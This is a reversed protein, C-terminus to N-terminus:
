IVKYNQSTIAGLIADLAIQVNRHQSSACSVEVIIGSPLHTLKVGPDGSGFRQGGRSRSCLLEVTVQKTLEEVASPM